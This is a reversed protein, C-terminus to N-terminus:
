ATAPQAILFYGFALALALYLIASVWGIASGGIAIQQIMAILFGVANALFFALNVDWRYTSDALKAAAWAVLSFGILTVGFLRSITGASWFWTMHEPPIQTLGYFSLLAPGWLAFALGIVLAVVANVVMLHQLKM